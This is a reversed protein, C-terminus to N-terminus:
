YYKFKDLLGENHLIIYILIDHIMQGERNYMEDKYQMKRLTILDYILTDKSGVHRNYYTNLLKKKTYIYSGPTFCRTQEVIPKGLAIYDEPDHYYNCPIDKKLSNCRISYECRCTKLDKYDSINALNGKIILGNVNIAYQKLENVYYLYSIPIEEKKNVIKVPININKIIEKTEEQYKTRLMAHDGSLPYPDIIKEKQITHNNNVLIENINNSIDAMYKAVTQIDKINKQLTIVYSELESYNLKKKSIKNIINDANNLYDQLTNNM